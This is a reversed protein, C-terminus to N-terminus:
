HCVSQHGEGVRLGAQRVWVAAGRCWLLQRSTETTCSGLSMWAADFVDAGAFFPIVEFEYKLPTRGRAKNAIKVLKQSNGVMNVM